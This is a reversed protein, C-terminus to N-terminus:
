SIYKMGLYTAAICALAVGSTAMISNLAKQKLNKTLIVAQNEFIEKQRDNWTKGIKRRLFDDESASSCFVNGSRYRPYWEMEDMGGVFPPIEGLSCFFDKVPKSEKSLYIGLRLLLQEIRGSSSTINTITFSNIFSKPYSSVYGVGSKQLSSILLKNNNLFDKFDNVAMEGEFFTFLRWARPKSTRKEPPLSPDIPLNYSNLEKNVLKLAVTEVPELFSSVYNTVLDKSISLPM